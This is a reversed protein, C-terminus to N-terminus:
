TAKPDLDVPLRKGTAKKQEVFLRSRRARGM